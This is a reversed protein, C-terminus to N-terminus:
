WRVLPVSHTAEERPPPLPLGSGRRLPQHGFQQLPVANVVAGLHSLELQATGEGTM